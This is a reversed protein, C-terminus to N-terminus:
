NGTDVQSKSREKDRLWSFVNTCNVLQCKVLQILQIEILVSTVDVAKGNILRRKYIVQGEMHADQKLKLKSQIELLKRFGDAATQPMHM